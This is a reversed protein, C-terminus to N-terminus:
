LCVLSWIKRVDAREYYEVDKSVFVKEAETDEDDDGDIDIQLHGTSHKVYELEANQLIKDAALPAPRWPSDLFDRVEEIAVCFSVLRAKPLIAQSVAVLEGSSNVVPGGSDGPNLPSQTEVVKFDREGSATRFKKQYVTRVTGSTYVWLADSSGSNGISEVEEGPTPSKSAMPIAVAGEPLRNLEVLALDRKRDVAVVRGRLGLKKVNDLYYDRDVATNGKSETPFFVVTSRADGVVHANTVMLRKEADILVGTGTSTGESNKALVWTTSKLAQQYTAADGFASRQLLFAIGALALIHITWSVINSQKKSFRM